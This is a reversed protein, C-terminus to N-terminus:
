IYRSVHLLYDDQEVLCGKYKNQFLSGVRHYKKNFYMVYSTSLRRMFKILGDKTHQKILMHFHNPMLVFSLLDVEQNLNIRLFRNIRDEGQIHLNKIEEIPSLYLRIYRLFVICDQDDLFITRKEVGRNYAHYYGNEVYIKIINRAPM